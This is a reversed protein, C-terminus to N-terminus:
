RKLLLAARSFAKQPIESLEVKFLRRIVSEILSMWVVTLIVKYAIRLLAMILM